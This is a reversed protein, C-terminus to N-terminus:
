GAGSPYPAGISYAQRLDSEVVDRQRKIREFTNTRKGHLNIFMKIEVHTNSKAPSTHASGIICM